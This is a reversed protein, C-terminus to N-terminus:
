NTPLTLHTYSVPDLWRSVLTVHVGIALTGDPPAAPATPVGGLLTLFLVLTAIQAISRM